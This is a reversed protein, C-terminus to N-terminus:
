ENGGIPNNKRLYYSDHEAKKYARNVREITREDLKSLDLMNSAALREAEAAGADQAASAAQQQKQLRSMSVGGNKLTYLASSPDNQREQAERASTKAMSYTDVNETSPKLSAMRGQLGALRMVSENYISADAFDGMDLEEGTMPQEVGELATKIGTLAKNRVAQTAEIEKGIRRAEAQTKAFDSQSILLSALSLGQNITSQISM